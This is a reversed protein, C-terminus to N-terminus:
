NENKICRGEFRILSYKQYVANRASMRESNLKSKRKQYADYKETMFEIEQKDKKTKRAKLQLSRLKDYEDQGFDESIDDFLIDIAMLEKHMAEIDVFGKSPPREQKNLIKLSSVQKFTYDRIVEFMVGWGAEVFAWSRKGNKPPFSGKIASWHLFFHEGSESIVVGEGKLEDFWRVTGMLKEM